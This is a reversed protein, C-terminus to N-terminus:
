HGARGRGALRALAGLCRGEPPAVLHSDADAALDAPLGSPVRVAAPDPNQHGGPHRGVPQHARQDLQSGLFARRGGRRAGLVLDEPVADIRGGAAVKLGHRANMAMLGNTALCLRKMAHSARAANLPLRRGTVALLLPPSPLEKFVILLTPTPASTSKIPADKNAMRGCEASCRLEFIAAAWRLSAAIEGADRRSM